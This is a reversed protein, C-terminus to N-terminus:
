RKSHHIELKSQHNIVKAERVTEEKGKPHWNVSVYGRPVRSLDSDDEDDSAYMEWNEMVMGFEVEGSKATRCVEDEYFYQPGNLAKQDKKLKPRKEKEAKKSEEASM